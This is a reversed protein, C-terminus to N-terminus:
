KKGIMKVAFGDVKCLEDMIEMYYKRLGVRADPKDKSAFWDARHNICMGVPIWKDLSYNIDSNQALNKDIGNIKCCPCMMFDGRVTGQVLVPIESPPERRSGNGHPPPQDQPPLQTQGTGGTAERKCEEVEEATVHDKDDEDVRMGIRQAIYPTGEIETCLNIWAKILEKGHTKLGNARTDATSDINFSIEGTVELLGPKQFKDSTPKFPLVMGQRYRDVTRDNM